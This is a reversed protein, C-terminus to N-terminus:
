ISTSVGFTLDYNDLNDITFIVREAPFLVVGSTDSTYADPDLVTNPEVTVTGIGPVDIVDGVKIKQGSSLLYALYCSLEFQKQYDWFGWRSVTGTQCYDKMSNPPAFGVISVNGANYGLNQAAQAQGPLATYDICIIGDIDPYTKLIDEGTAVATNFDLDSYYNDPHVNVWNPYKESIYDEGADHWSNQTTDSSKGNHWLYKIEDTDVDKGRESLSTAMMDVCMKGMLEPKGQSVMINRCQPDADSDWTVIAIGSEMAAFLWNRVNEPDATSICIANVRSKIANKVMEPQNVTAGDPIDEDGSLSFGGLEPEDYKARANRSLDDMSKFIAVVDIQNESAVVVPEIVLVVVMIFIFIWLFAKVKM